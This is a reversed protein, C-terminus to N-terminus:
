KALSVLAACWSINDSVAQAVREAFRPIDEDGVILQIMRRTMEVHYAEAPDDGGVHCQFYVLGQRDVGYCRSTSEWLADIMSNAHLEFAVMNACRELASPAGLGALLKTLYPGTPASFDPTAVHGTLTEIDNKLLSAHFWKGTDLISHLGQKGYREIVYAGGTEDWCLFNGVVSTIEVDRTMPRNSKIAELVANAQAGAQLYPFAQSMALYHPFIKELAARSSVHRFPHDDLGAQLEILMADIEGDVVPSLIAECVDAM